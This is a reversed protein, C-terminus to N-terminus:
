RSTLSATRTQITGGDDSSTVVPETSEAYFKSFGPKRFLRIKNAALQNTFYAHQNTAGQSKLYPSGTAYGQFLSKLSWERKYWTLVNLSLKAALGDDLCIDKESYKLRGPGRILQFVSISRGNDGKIHCDRVEQRFDSENKAISALAIASAEKAAPGDFPLEVIPADVAANIGQAIAQYTAMQASNENPRAKAPTLALMVSMILQILSM